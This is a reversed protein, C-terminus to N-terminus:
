AFMKVKIDPYPYYNLLMFDEYVYDKINEKKNIKLTPLARPTRKLMEEVAGSEIHQIYLHADSISHVIIGPNIGCQEALICTLLAATTTNWGLFVDWSRQLLHCNLYKAGDKDDVSFQYLMHCPPLAMKNIDLVNWLNIIIRRSNPEKKILEICNQFQDFGKGTYDTHMDIYEAGFHRLQFGYGPGIDDEQYPLEKKKLYEASSNGNWINVGKKKLEGVNTSGRLMWLLEEVVGKWFVNKVTLIPLGESLDCKIQYGFISKTKANRANKLVGDNNIINVLQLYQNEFTRAKTRVSYEGIIIEDMKVVGFPTYEVIKFNLGNSKDTGTKIVSSVFSKNEAINLPFYISEDIINEFPYHQEIHTVYVKGIREHFLAEKYIRAGGIVWIEQKDQCLKLAENLNAATHVDDYTLQGRVIVINLRNKNKKYFIPLSNWTNHGMIVANNETKQKFFDMDEKILSWPLSYINRQKIGILLDSNLAVIINFKQM